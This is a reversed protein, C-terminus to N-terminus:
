DAEREISCCLTSEERVGASRRHRSQRPISHLGQTRKEYAEEYLSKFREFDLDDPVKITKSIANDVYPQLAAQMELHTDPDLSRADVFYGPLPARGNQERWLQFAYDTMDYERIEGRTDLIRRRYRFDFVPEIGSSINNALLSITVTPAIAVLHSNRIGYQRIDRQLDKPLTRVFQGELYDSELFPFSDKERALRVSSRYATYCLTRMIDRALELSPQGGYVHGLMILTDALGTIGLGIRRSGRAQAAQQPLPFGSLDVVNDLMRVAVEVTERFGTMDFLSRNAFPNEVFRTLNISGLNCAGYYPLPIEGCPNTATICERYYLNNLRNISDIFLVGPEACDYTARMIRQWLGRAPVRRFVRCRVASDTGSWQRDM